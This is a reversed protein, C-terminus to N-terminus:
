CPKQVKWPTKGACYKRRIKSRYFQYSRWSAEHWVRNKKLFNAIEPLDNILFQMPENAPKKNTVVADRFSPLTENFVKGFNDKIHNPM